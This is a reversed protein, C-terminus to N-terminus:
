IAFDLVQRSVRKRQQERQFRDPRSRLPDSLILFLSNFWRGLDGSQWRQVSGIPSDLLRARIKNFEAEREVFGRQRGCLNLLSPRELNDFPIRQWLCLLSVLHGIM